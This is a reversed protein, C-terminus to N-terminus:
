SCTRHLSHSTATQMAQQTKELGEEPLLLRPNKEKAKKLADLAGPPPSLQTTKEFWELAEKYQGLGYLANAKGNHSFYHSPTLRLAQEYASLGEFYRGLAVLSYAKGAHALTSNPDQTLAIENAALAEQFRGLVNLAFAKGIYAVTFNKDLIFNQGLSKKALLGHKKILESTSLLM